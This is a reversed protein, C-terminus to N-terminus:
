NDENLHCCTIIFVISVMNSTTDREPNLIKTRPSTLTAVEHDGIATCDRSAKKKAVNYKRKKQLGKRHNIATKIRM